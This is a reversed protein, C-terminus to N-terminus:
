AGADAREDRETEAREDDSPAGRAEGEEAALAAKAAQLATRLAREAGETQRAARRAEKSRAAAQRARELRQLREEDDLAGEGAPKLKGEAAQAADLEKRAKESASMAKKLAARADKVADSLAARRAVEGEEPESDLAIDQVASVLALMPLERVLDDVPKGFLDVARARRLRLPLFVLSADRSRAVLKDRTLDEISEVEAEIRIEELTETLRERGKDHRGRGAAALLRITAGAWEESRTMMYALLLSLRGTEDDTWWVDIRREEAPVAEIAEVEAARADLVIVNVGLSAAARLHRVFIRESTEDPGTSAAEADGLWNLLITNTRLPGIGHSQIVTQAATELNPAAVVLAFAQLEQAEIDALLAKHEKRCLEALHEGDGEILKVVTTVGAGGEIWAAFHVLGKRRRPADSFVLLHPRWNRPHVPEEAMARLNTRVSHFYHDRRSAAWRVPGALREVYQYLAFMLVLSIASAWPNIMLMVGLCALAGVLSARYHFWRYRPRFSPSNARAELATAYNLLGYSILFFMSVVPAIFDVGGAACFLLAIALTLLVGRRPNDAAGHGQAFFTLPPFVRDRALAQLIRPAGMFSALASSLTAAVIGVTILVPLVAVRAMAEYDAVLQEGPLAGAFVLTAALYVALSVFVAAFTGSPLSRGPDKLDGSMSVGQTFGTVAPFFLAFLLWFDLDVGPTPSWNAEVRAWSFDAIGGIFFAALGAGLAAMVLYQLRTAWDAGLWAFVFLFGAALMALGQGGLPAAAPVIAAIAEGFGICYFAVSISQALFLVIGLAGGFEVGLSRSILYYDGGGKVRMNTAIASLSSSTLVSIAHAILMIVLAQGIGGAGVVYGLRRFLILGLITLVSPTFVGAFTGLKASASKTAAAM